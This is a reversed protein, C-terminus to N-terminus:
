TKKLTYRVEEGITDHKGKVKKKLRRRGGLDVRVSARKGEVASKRDRPRNPRQAPANSCRRRPACGNTPPPPPNICGTASIRRPSSRCPRRPRPRPLPSALDSSCVDSSWDSM